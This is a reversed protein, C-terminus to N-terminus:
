GVVNWGLLFHQARLLLQIKVLSLQSIEAALSLNWGVTVQPNLCCFHPNLRHPAAWLIDSSIPHDHRHHCVKGLQTTHQWRGLLNNHINFLCHQFDPDIDEREHVNTVVQAIKHKCEKPSNRQMPSSLITSSDVTSDLTQLGSAVCSNWQLTSGLFSSKSKSTNGSRWARLDGFYQNRSELDGLGWNRGGVASLGFIRFVCTRGRKQEIM